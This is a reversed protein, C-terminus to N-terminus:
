PGNRVYSISFGYNQSYPGKNATIDRSKLVSDLNAMTKRRLLVCRKIELSCDSDLTLKSGLFYLRDRNGNEGQRNAM